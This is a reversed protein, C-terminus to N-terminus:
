KHLKITGLQTEKNTKVQVNTITSDQYGNSANIFVNYTGEQLGRVKFEGERGPIAYATDTSNYITLVSLAERPTVRGSVSGTTKLIFVHIVPRLYFMNDRVKIISRQVDFDLWLRYRRPSYEECENGKLTLLIYSKDGPPLNLPYTVSDKVLSNNTGLEIKIKKIKGEPILGNALLTDAGNRLALLDYVGPTIALSDWVQCSDDRDDDNGNGHHGHDDDDGNKSCTDVLVKVSKIDILVKDFLAPDDTLYFTVQQKGSPMNTEGSSDKSCAYFAITIVGALLLFGALKVITKM